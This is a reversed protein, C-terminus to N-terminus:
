LGTDIPDGCMDTLDTTEPQFEICYRWLGYYTINQQGGLSIDYYEWYPLGMAISTCIVAFIMTGLSAYGLLNTSFPIEKYM